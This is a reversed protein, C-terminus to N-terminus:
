AGEGFVKLAWSDVLSAWGNNCWGCAIVCNGSGWASDGGLARPQVHEVTGIERSLAGIKEGPMPLRVRANCYHCRRGQAM